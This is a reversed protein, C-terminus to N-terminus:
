KEYTGDYVRIGHSTEAVRAWCQSFYEQGKKGIVTDKDAYLLVVLLHKQGKEVRKNWVEEQCDVFNPLNEAAGWHTEGPVNKLCLRAEDNLGSSDEAHSYEESYRYM